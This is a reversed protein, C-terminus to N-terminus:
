MLSSGGTTWRIVYSCRCDVGRAARFVGISRGLGAKSNGRGRAAEAGGVDCGALRM